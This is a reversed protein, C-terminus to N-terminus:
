AMTGIALGVQFERFRSGQSRVVTYQVASDGPITMSDPSYKTLMEEIKRRQGVLGAVLPRASGPSFDPIAKRVARSERAPEQCRSHPSVYRPAATSPGSCPSHTRAHVHLCDGHCSLQSAVNDICEYDARTGRAQGHRAFQDPMPQAAPEHVLRRARG